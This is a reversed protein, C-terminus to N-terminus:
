DTFRFGLRRREEEDSCWALDLLTAKAQSVTEFLAEEAGDDCGTIRLGVPQEKTHHLSVDTLYIAQRYRSYEGPTMMRIAEKLDDDSLQSDQCRTDGVYVILRPAFHDYLHRPLRYLSHAERAHRKALLQDIGPLKKSGSLDTLTVMGYNGPWACGPVHEDDPIHLMWRRRDGKSCLTFYELLTREGLEAAFRRAYESLALIPQRKRIVRVLNKRVSSSHISIRM